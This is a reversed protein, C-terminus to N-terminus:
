FKVELVEKILQNDKYYEISLFNGELFGIGFNESKQIMFIKAQSTNFIKCVIEPKDNILQFGNTIPQAFLLSKLENKEVIEENFKISTLTSTKQVADKKVEPQKITLNEIVLSKEAERFALQYAKKYEKEKSVGFNSLTIEHRQCDYVAIQLRTSMFKNDEVVDVYYFDCPRNKQEQTLESANIVTFGRKELALKLFYKLQFDENGRACHLKQPIIFTQSIGISSILLFLFTFLRMM